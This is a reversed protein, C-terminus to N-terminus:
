SKEEAPLKRHLHYINVAQKRICIVGNFFCQAEQTFCAAGQVTKIRIESYPQKDERVRLIQFIGMNQTNM